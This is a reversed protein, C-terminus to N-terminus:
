PRHGGIPSRGHGFRALSVYRNAGATSGRTTQNAPTAATALITQVYTRTERFPPIGDYKSVNGPGANYAALALDWRGFRDYQERLYRAGGGLNQAADWPDTVKLYHATGPMLQALGMAGAHSRATVRYRSEQSVLADFLRVPVGASCAADVIHSFYIRRRQRAGKGIGYREFYQTQRCDGDAFSRVQTEYRAFPSRGGRMWRPLYPPTGAAEGIAARPVASQPAEDLANPDADIIAGGPVLVTFARAREPEFRELHAVQASVSASVCGLALLWSKKM